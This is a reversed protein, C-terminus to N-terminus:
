GVATSQPAEDFLPHRLRPLMEKPCIQWFRRREEDWHGLVRAARPSNTRELHEKILQQLVEEWHGSGLRNIAISDPNIRTEFDGAADYVFAMGGSMGAGFNDGVAGLIVVNGGTMYECANAGAGEIVAHAGSNRVAFREGALGAAFLKGGTAGYLCTNGVIAGLREAEEPAPRLTILGGSLGKGVYDNADGTVHLAIGQVLFAGLSQGCSGRLKVSLQGEPLASMGFKRVVHASARAGIARQTNRVAFDLQRKEGREFFAPAESIFQHDLSQPPENRGLQTCYAPYPSDVRVLLPNLDIDDLHEAGRSIQEILDTRGIIEELRRFGIESLIERVEEAIFSMLNVVKEPTGTFKARLREDQTAVGVPCTNSHCQRVMLCGLAVLAATGIGFEEAGLIAAVVIDRGTRL